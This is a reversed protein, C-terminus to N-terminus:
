NPSNASLVTQSILFCSYFQVAIQDSIKLPHKFVVASLIYLPFWPTKQEKRERERVRKRNIRDWVSLLHGM